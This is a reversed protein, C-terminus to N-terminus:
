QGIEATGPQEKHGLFSRREHDLEDESKGGIRERAPKILRRRAMLMTMPDLDFIPKHASDFFKVEESIGFSEEWGDMHAVVLIDAVKMMALDFPLWIDHDHPDIDGHIALAHCHTIPSYVNIGARLMTAAIKAADVFAREIGHPYKSYPTALYVLNGNISESGIM